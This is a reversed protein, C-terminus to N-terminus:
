VSRILQLTIEPQANTQALVAAGAQQLIQAAVLKASEQAVDTDTIQSSALAINQTMSSLNSIGTEIRSVSAGIGARALNLTELRQKSLALTIRASAQNSVVMGALEDIGTKSLDRLFVDHVGNTDGDVLISSSSTFFVKSGDASLRAAFGQGITGSSSRSVLEIEGTLIDKRYLQEGSVGPILNSSSSTFALFRGDASLAPALSSNDGQEGSATSSALSLEGTQLDKLYIQNGTVGSILNISASYFALFRGDASLTPAFSSNNGQAGSATSSALRLEGTQIDKLYIQQGSVGPILNSSSSTFALFR